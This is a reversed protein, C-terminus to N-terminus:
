QRPAPPDQWQGAEVLKKRLGPLPYGGRYAAWAHERAEEYKKQKLTLLGYNYHIEPSEPDLELAREFLKGAEELNGRKWEYVAQLSVVSADDPAFERAWVFFCDLSHYQHDRGGALKYTMLARLAPGHNPSHRLTFDLDAIVNHTFENRRIRDLAPNLHLQDLNGIVERVPDSVTRQRYDVKGTQIQIQPASGCAGDVAYSSVPGLCALLALFAVTADRRGVETESM